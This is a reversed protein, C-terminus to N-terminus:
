KKFGSTVTKMECLTISCKNCTAYWKDGEAQFGHFAFKVVFPLKESDKSAM